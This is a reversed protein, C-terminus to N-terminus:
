CKADQPAHQHAVTLGHCDTCTFVDRAAEPACRICVSKACRPCSGVLPMGAHVTCAPGKMVYDADSIPQTVPPAALAVTPAVDPVRTGCAACVLNGQELRSGCGECFM